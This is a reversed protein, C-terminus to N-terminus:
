LMKQTKRIIWEATILLAFLVYALPNDGLSDERVEEEIKPTAHIKEPLLPLQDLEIYDGLQQLRRVDISPEQEERDEIVVEFPAEASDLRALYTGPLRATWEGSFLERDRRLMVSFVSPGFVSVTVSELPVLQYDATFKRGFFRVTEGPRYSSRDTELHELKGSAMRMQSTWRIAQRWFPYFYPQDGRLFRWRWTEDTLWALVRGRGYHAAVLLPARVDHLEVLVTAGPKLEKVPKYWMVEPLEREWIRRDAEEDADFRTVPHPETRRYPFGRDSTPAQIAGDPVVPLLKVLPTGRYSDPNCRPGALFIVGGGLQDSLRTLDQLTEDGGLVGPEVDGLLIVDYRALGRLDSPFEHIPEFFEPHDLLQGAPRGDPLSHPQAYDRDASTLLCHCLLSPDRTLANALFHYDRRPYHDVYLVKLLEDSVHIRHRAVNNATTIEDPHPDVRLILEFWGKETPIWESTGQHMRDIRVTKSNELRAAAQWNEPLPEDASKLPLVYLDTRVVPHDFGQRRLVYGLIVRDHIQVSEPGWPKSISLDAVTRPKGPAVTFLRWGMRRAADVPDAGANNQGDSILIVGALTDARHIEKLKLLADGVATEPDDARLEEIEAQRLRSGFAYLRVQAGPMHKALDFRTLADRIKDMRAPGADDRLSSSRSVDVLVAVIPKVQTLVRTEFVPDFILLLLWLALGARMMALTYRIWRRAGGIEKRYIVHAAAVLAVIILLVAWGPPSDRWTVM